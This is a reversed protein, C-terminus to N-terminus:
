RPRNLMPREEVHTAGVLGFCPANWAAFAISMCANASAVRVLVARACEIPATRAASRTRSSARAVFYASSDAARKSESRACRDPSTQKKRIALPNRRYRGGIAVTGGSKGRRVGRRTRTSASGADIAISRPAVASTIMSMCRSKRSGASEALREAIVHRQQVGGHRRTAREEVRRAAEAHEDHVRAFAM